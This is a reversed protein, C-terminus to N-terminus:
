IRTTKIKPKAPPKPAAPAVGSKEQEERLRIREEPLLGDNPEPEQTIGSPPMGFMQRQLDEMQKFLQDFGGLSGKPDQGSDGFPDFHFFRPMVSQSFSTDMKFYFYSSSDPSIRYFENKGPSLRITDAKGPIGKQMERQMQNFIQDLSQGNNNQAVVALPLLALCFIVIQKQKMM